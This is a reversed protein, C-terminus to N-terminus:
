HRHRRSRHRLHRSGSRRRHKASVKSHAKEIRKALEARRQKELKEKRAKAKEVASRYLYENGYYDVRGDLEYFHDRVMWHRRQPPAAPNVCRSAKSIIFCGKRRQIVFGEGVKNFKRRVFDYRWLARGNDLYNSSFGTRDVAVFLYRGKCELFTALISSYPESAFTVESRRDTYVNHCFLRNSYTFYVRHCRNDTFKAVVKAGSPLSAVVAKVRNAIVTQGGTQMASTAVFVILLFLAKVTSKM